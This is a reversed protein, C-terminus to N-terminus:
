LSPVLTTRTLTFVRAHHTIVRNGCNNDDSIAIEVIYRVVIIIEVIYRVVIIIKVIYRVFNITHIATSHTFYTQQYDIHPCSACVYVDM